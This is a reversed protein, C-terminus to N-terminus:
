VAFRWRENRTIKGPRSTAAPIPLTLLGPSKLQAKHFSKLQTLLEAPACYDWGLLTMSSTSVPAAENASRLAEACEHLQSYVGCTIVTSLGAAVASRIGAASSVVALCGEPALALANLVYSYRENAAGGAHEDDSCVASFEASIPPEINARLLSSVQSRGENTAIALRVGARAAVNLFHAVGARLKVAGNNLQEQYITTHRRTMAAILHCLDESSRWHPRHREVFAQIMEKGDTARLLEAYLLRGWHWDLGAEAFVKNFAERRADQTEALVGDIGFVIAQLM